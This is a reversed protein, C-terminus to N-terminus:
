RGAQRGEREKERGGERQQSACGCHLLEFSTDVQYGVFLPVPFFLPSLPFFFLKV